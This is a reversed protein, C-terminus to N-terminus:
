NLEGCVSRRVVLSGDGDGDDDDDDDVDDHDTAPMVGAFPICCLLYAMLPAAAAAAATAVDRVVVVNCILFIALAAADGDDVRCVTFWEGLAAVMLKYLLSTVFQLCVIYM